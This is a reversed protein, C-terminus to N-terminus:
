HMEALINYVTRNHIKTLSDRGGEAIMSAPVTSNDFIMWKDVIAVVNWLM